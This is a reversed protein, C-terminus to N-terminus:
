NSKLPNDLLTCDVIKPIFYKITPEDANDCFKTYKGPQIGCYGSKSSLNTFNVQYYVRKFHSNDDHTGAYFVYNGIQVRVVTICTGEPM